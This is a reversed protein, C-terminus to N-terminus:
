THIARSPICKNGKNAVNTWSIATYIKFYNMEIDSLCLTLITVSFKPRVNIEKKERFIYINLAFIKPINQSGFHDFLIKVKFGTAYYIILFRNSVLCLFKSFIHNPTGVSLTM